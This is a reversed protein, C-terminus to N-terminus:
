VTALPHTWNVKNVTSWGFFIGHCGQKHSIFSWQFIWSSCWKNMLRYYYQFSHYWCNQQGLYTKWHVLYKIYIMCFQPFSDSLFYPACSTLLATILEKSFCTFSNGCCTTLNLCSVLMLPLKPVWNFLFQFHHCFSNKRPNLEALHSIGLSPFKNMLSTKSSFGLVQM